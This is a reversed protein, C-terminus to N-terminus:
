LDTLHFSKRRCIFDWRCDSCIGNRLGTDIVHRAVLQSFEAFSREEGETFGCARMVERDYRVVKEQANCKGSDNNPCCECVIDTEAKLVIKQSPDEEMEHLIRGMHDTFDPSYGKGEYFQFCMLHHPRLERCNRVPKAGSQVCCNTKTVPM